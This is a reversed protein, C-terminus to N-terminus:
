LPPEWIRLALPIIGMFSTISRSRSCSFIATSLALRGKDRRVNLGHALDRHARTSDLRIGRPVNSADHIPWSRDWPSRRVSQGRLAGAFVVGCSASRLMRSVLQLASRIYSQEDLSLLPQLWPGTTKQLIASRPDEVYRIWGDPAVWLLDAGCHDADYSLPATPGQLGRIPPRTEANCFPALFSCARPDAHCPLPPYNGRSRDVRQWLCLQAV